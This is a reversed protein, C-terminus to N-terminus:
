FSVVAGSSMVDKSIKEGFVGSDASIIYKNVEGFADIVCLLEMSSFSFAM